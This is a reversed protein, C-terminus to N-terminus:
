TIKSLMDLVALTGITCLEEEIDKNYKIEFTDSWEVTILRNIEYYDDETLLKKSRSLFAKLVNHSHSRIYDTIVELLEDHDIDDRTFETCDKLLYEINETSYDSFHVSIFDLIDSINESKGYIKDYIVKIVKPSLIQGLDSTSYDDLLSNLEDPFMELVTIGDKTLKYELIFVIVNLYETDDSTSVIISFLKDIFIYLHDIDPPVENFILQNVEVDTFNYLGIIEDDLINLNILKHIILYKVLDTTIRLKDYIFSFDTVNLKVEDMVDSTEIQYWQDFRYMQLYFDKWDICVHTSIYYKRFQQKFLEIWFTPNEQIKNITTNLSLVLELESNDVHSLILSWLAIDLDYIKRLNLVINNDVINLIIEDIRVYKRLGNVLVTELQHSINNNNIIKILQSQQNPTLLVNPGNIVVNFIESYKLYSRFGTNFYYKIYNLINYQQQNNPYEM